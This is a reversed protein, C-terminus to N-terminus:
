RKIVVLRKLTIIMIIITVMWYQEWGIVEWAEWKYKDEFLVIHGEIDLIILELEDRLLKLQSISIDRLKVKKSNTSEYIKVKIM